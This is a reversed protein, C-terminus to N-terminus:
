GNKQYVIWMVLSWTNHIACLLLLIVGLWLGRFAAEWHDVVFGIGAALVFGYAPIPAMIQSLWDLRNFDQNRQASQYLPKIYQICIFIGFLSGAVLSLGLVEPSYSPALILGCILLVSVFYIISPEVFIEFQARTEDSILHMGLSLAVFMLGVLTASAGGMMFYFNHWSRLMESFVETM